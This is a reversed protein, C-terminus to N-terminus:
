ANVKQRAHAQIGRQVASFNQKMHFEQPQAQVSLDLGGFNSAAGQYSAQRQM